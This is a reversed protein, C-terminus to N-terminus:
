NPIRKSWVERWRRSNKEMNESTRFGCKAQCVSPFGAVFIGRKVFVV